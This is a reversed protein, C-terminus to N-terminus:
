RHEMGVRAPPGERPKCRQKEKDEDGPSTRKRRLEWSCHKFATLSHQTRPEDSCLLRTEPKQLDLMLFTLMLTACILHYFEREPKFGKSPFLFM